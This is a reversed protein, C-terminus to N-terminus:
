KIKTGNGDIMSTVVGYIPQDEFHNGTQKNNLKIAITNGKEINIDVNVKTWPIDKNLKVDVIGNFSLNNDATLQANTNNDQKFNILDHTHRKNGDALVKIFSTKFDTIKGQKASISWNGTLVFKSMSNLHETINVAKSNNTNNSPVYVLSSIPGSLTFADKVNTTNNNEQAFSNFSIANNTTSLTILLVLGFVISGTIIIKSFTKTKM